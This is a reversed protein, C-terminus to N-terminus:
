VSEPGKSQLEALKALSPEIVTAVERANEEVFPTGARITEQYRRSLGSLRLLGINGAISVLKHLAQRKEEQDASPEGVKAGLVTIESAAQQLVMALTEGPILKTLSDFREQSFIPEGSPRNDAAPTADQAAQVQLVGVRALADYLAEKDVPKALYGNMGADLCASMDDRSVYATLAIIPISRAPEPTDPARLRRTAEIGDMVPMEIDMLVADFGGARVAAMADAGNAATATECGITELLACAVDSNIEIDDVVLIRPATKRLTYDKPTGVPLAPSEAPGHTTTPIELTVTTGAGPASTIHVTGGMVEVGAHVIAMGLGNGSISTTGIREFPEFIVALRDEDMGTGTDTVTLRLVEGQAAADIVAAVTVHGQETFKVSNSLINVLCRQLRPGDVTVILNAIGDGAVKLDIGKLAAETRFEGMADDILKPLSCPAVVAEEKVGQIQSAHLIDDIMRLLTKAAVSLRDVQEARSQVSADSRLLQAFGLIANLPTRVEHSMMAIFRNRVQLAEQAATESEKLSAVIERRRNEVSILLGFIAVGAANAFLLVPGFTTMITLALDLSPLLLMTPLCVLTSVVAYALLALMPRDFRRRQMVYWAITSCLAYVVMAIVGTPAGVGGIWARLAMPPIAAVLATVPGGLIGSLLIPSARADFIMGPAFEIPFLMVLASAAGLAIGLILSRTLPNIGDSLGRTASYVLAALALLGINTILPQLLEM